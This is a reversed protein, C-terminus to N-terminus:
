NLGFPIFPFRKKLDIFKKLLEDNKINPNSSKFRGILLSLDSVYSQDANFYGNKNDTIILHSYMCVNYKMLTNYNYFQSFDYNLKSATIDADYKHFPGFSCCYCIKEYSDYYDDFIEEEDRLSFYEIEDEKVIYFRSTSIIYAIMLLKREDSSLKGLDVYRKFIDLNHKNCEDEFNSYKKFMANAVDTFSNDLLNEINEISKLSENKKKKKLLMELFNSVEENEKNILDYLEKNIFNTDVFFLTNLQSDIQNLNNIKIKKLKKKEENDNNIEHNKSIRGDM